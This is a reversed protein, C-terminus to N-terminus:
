TTVLKLHEKTYTRLITSLKHDSGSSNRFVRHLTKGVKSLSIQSLVPIALNGRWLGIKYHWIGFGLMEQKFALNSDPRNVLHRFYFRSFRLFSKFKVRHGQFFKFISTVFVQFGQFFTLKSEQTNVIWWPIFMKSYLTIPHAFFIARRYIIYCWPRNKSAIIKSFNHPIAGLMKHFQATSTYRFNCIICYHHPSFLM